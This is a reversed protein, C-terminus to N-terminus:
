IVKVTLSSSEKGATRISELTNAASILQEVGSGRWTMIIMDVDAAPYSGSTKRTVMQAKIGAYTLPGHEKCWAEITAREEKERAELDKLQEMIAALREFASYIQEM